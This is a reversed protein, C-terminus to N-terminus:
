ALARKLLPITTEQQPAASAIITSLAMALRAPIIAYLAAIEKPISIRLVSPAPVLIRQVVLLALLAHQLGM